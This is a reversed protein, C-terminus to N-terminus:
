HPEGVTPLKSFRAFFAQFDGFCVTSAQFWNGFGHCAKLTRLEVVDAQSEPLWLVVCSAEQCRRPTMRM